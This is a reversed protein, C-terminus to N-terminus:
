PYVYQTLINSHTTLSPKTYMGTDSKEKISRSCCFLETIKNSFKYKLTNFDFQRLLMVRNNFYLYNLTLILHLYLTFTFNPLGIIKM